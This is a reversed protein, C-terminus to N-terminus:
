PDYRGSGLSVRTRLALGLMDMLEQHKPFLFSSENSTFGSRGELDAVVEETPMRSMAEALPVGGRVHREVLELEEMAVIQWPLDSIGDARLMEDIHERFFDSNIGHLPELTLLVPLFNTCGHLVELGPTGARCAERFRHLQKLGKLVQKLSGTWHM